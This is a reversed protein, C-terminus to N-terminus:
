AYHVWRKQLRFQIATFAMIIALLLFAIASAYGRNGQVFGDFYFLYVITQTDPLAPNTSGIMVYVLDFMQLSTIMSLVSVFFSSPSLLPITIRWFSRWAGAGDMQAAEYIERPISQLGALLIVVNFGLVQWIGVVALAVIAIRGNSTWYPGNIGVQSLLWNILGYQGNYLLRWMLAAAVPMTVVPLFYLVRYAGVGRLRARNLLVAIVVAIPVGVLVLASYILTNRIASLLDPDHFLARYNALGSWKHSGFVNWSTFSYYLTQAVPWLYFIGLGALSPALLLLAWGTDTRRRRYQSLKRILTVM